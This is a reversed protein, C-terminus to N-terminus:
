PTARAFYNNLASKRKAVHMFDTTKFQAISNGKWFLHEFGERDIVINAEKRITALNPESTEVKMISNMIFEDLKKASEQLIESEIKSFDMNRIRLKSNKIGRITGFEAIM